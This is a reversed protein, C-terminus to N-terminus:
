VAVNKKQKTNQLRIFYNAYPGVILGVIFGVALLINVVVCKWILHQANTTTHANVLVAHYIYRQIM